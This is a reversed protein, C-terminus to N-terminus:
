LMHRFPLLLWEFLKEIPPRKEWSKYIFPVSAKKTAETHQKIQTIIEPERGFLMIEFMYRFSRYDFNSSGIGFVQDDVLIMKSHLNNPEYFLFEVGKKYLPGLYKNRLIDVLNVDSKKPLMVTIQTGKEASEM